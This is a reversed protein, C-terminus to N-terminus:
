SRSRPVGGGLEAAIRAVVAVGKLVQPNVFTVYRPEPEAAIVRGPNLPLPIHVCELGLRRAYHRRACETPCWCPRPMPSGAGTPTARLQAPPLRGLDVEDATRLPLTSTSHAILLFSTRFAEDRM